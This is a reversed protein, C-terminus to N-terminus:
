VCVLNEFKRFGHGEGEFEVYVVPVGRRRLADAVFQSQNPPVVRDEMGQFIILPVDIRDAKSMASRERYLDRQAPYAGVLTECYHSEYKHTEKHFVEVDSIGFHSSGAAFFDRFALAAFTTFGGASGGRVITRNPDALGQAILYRAGNVADNVDVVGWQGRLRSRYERGYGASGGYNIDLYAFGRSTFYQVGMDLANKTSGTPGGHVPVILPPLEGEPARSDPSRPPHYFGYARLGNQTPYTIHRGPSIYDAPIAYKVSSDLVTTQGTKLDLRVLSRAQTPSAAILYASDGVVELRIIFTFETPIDTYTGAEADIIGIHWTGLRNNAALIRTPSLFRYMRLGINWFPNGIEADMPCVPSVEGDQWRYLNWWNSRDSCFYLIGDPSWCPDTVSEEDGGAVQRVNSLSGDPNVDAAWVSSSYFPMHPHNWAIWALKTGDPSLAPFAVFDTQDFLVTGFADGDMSIAAITHKPEGAGTRDERIGILRRRQRDVILDAYRMAGAETIPVPAEGPTHRYLRDDPVNSFYTTGDSVTFCAGGYEYVRTRVYYPAPTLEEIGNVPDFRAIVGRGGKEPFNRLLYLVDGDTCLQGIWGNPSHAVLAASVPSKWSGYPAVTTM